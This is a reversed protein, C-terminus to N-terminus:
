LVEWIVDKEKVRKAETFCKQPENIITGRYNKAMRRMPHIDKDIIIKFEIRPPIESISVIYYIFATGDKNKGKYYCREKVNMGFM